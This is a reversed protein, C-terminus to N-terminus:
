QQLNGKPSKQTKADEVVYARLTERYSNVSYADDSLWKYVNKFQVEYNWEAAIRQRGREGMHRMASLHHLFWRLAAAISEPDDPDCSLGYGGNVYMERWDPLNSVLLALGCGLYDFPKNSAGVMAEQNFDKSEKPMLALGVDSQQCWGLLDSRLPVAGIFKVRDTIGIQNAREQLQRTYSKHGVTEYGIIRLKVKEPLMAMAELVTAPLRSPVISGHYIIWLDGGDHAPRPQSVEELSPCNWVVIPSSLGDGASRGTEVAFREARQENPLVCLLARNALKRRTWLVVRMFQSVESRRGSVDPQPSDHEHYLIKFRPFYSLVLAIPCALPDSAYIWRPKWRLTWFLVWLCFRMYHLKQRWGGPSFRIRRVEIREHTPFSLADAGFAGTGLFLVQWGERALIRSSHELPPYAAPNTYQIHLIKRNVLMDM